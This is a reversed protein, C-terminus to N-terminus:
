SDIYELFVKVALQGVRAGEDSYIMGFEGVGDDINGDL